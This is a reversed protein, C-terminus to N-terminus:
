RQRVLSQETLKAYYFDFEAYQDPVDDDNDDGKFTVQEGHFLLFTAWNANFLM